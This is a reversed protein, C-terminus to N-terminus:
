HPVKPNNNVILMSPLTTKEKIVNIISTPKKKDFVIGNEEFMRYFSTEVVNWLDIITLDYMKDKSLKKARELLEFDANKAKINSLLKEKVSMKKMIKSIGMSMLLGLVTSFLSELFVKWFNSPLLATLASIGILFFIVPPFLLSLTYSFNGIIHFKNYLKDEKILSIAYFYVTFALLGVFVWYIFEISIQLSFISFNFSLKETLPHLAFLAALLALSYAIKTKSFENM